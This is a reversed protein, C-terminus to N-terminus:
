PRRKTLKGEFDGKHFRLAKRRRKLPLKILTPTILKESLLLRGMSMTYRPMM